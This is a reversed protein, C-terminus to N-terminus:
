IGKDKTNIRYIELLEDEGLKVEQPKYKQEVEILSQYDRISTLLVKSESIDIHDKYPDNRTLVEIKNTDDYYKGTYLVWIYLDDRVNYAYLKGTVLDTKDLIREKNVSEMETTSLPLGTRNHVYKSLFKPLVTELNGNTLSSVKSSIFQIYQRAGEPIIGYNSSFEKTFNSPNFINQLNKSQIENLKKEYTDTNNNSYQENGKYETDLKGWNKYVEPTTLESLSNKFMSYNEDKVDKYNSDIQALFGHNPIYYSVGDIVYKWYGVSQENTILDKIYINDMIQMDVIAIEKIYMVHMAILIQALISHWVEESHYGTQVMKNVPGLDNKKYVRQTWTVLNYNPAETLLMLCKGTSNNINAISNKLDRAKVRSGTILKGDMELSRIFKRNVNHEIHGEDFQINFTGDANIQIIHGGRFYNNELTLNLGNGNLYAHLKIFTPDVAGSIPLTPIKSKIDTSLETLQNSELFKNFNIEDIVDQKRTSIQGTHGEKIKNLKKFDISSSSSIFYSYMMVFNPCLKKRIIEERVFEYYAVERWINFENRKFQNDKMGKVNYELITLDYIRLNLGVSFKSCQTNGSTHDYRIPYCSRYMIMKNPLTSYPNPMVKNNHYPNLNLLKLYSLLNKSFVDDRIKSNIEIDDGDGIRVFVSRIYDYLMLREKLTISSYLYRGKENPLMDEYLDSLKVHDGTPGPLAINFNKVVPVNNPVFWYPYQNHMGTASIYPFNPPIANQTIKNQIPVYAAPYTAMPNAQQQNLLKDSLKFEVLNQNNTAAYNEATYKKELSMPETSSQPKREIGENKSNFPSNKEGIYSPIM